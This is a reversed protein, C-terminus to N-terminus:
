EGNEAEEPVGPLEEAADAESPMGEESPPVTPGKRELDQADDSDPERESREM